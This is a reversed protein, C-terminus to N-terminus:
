KIDRVCRIYNDTSKETTSLSGSKFDIGWAITNDNAFSTITNYFRPKIYQFSKHIANKNRVDIINVFENITPVRWDIYGNLVISECYIQASEYTELYELVESNDQWMLKHTNDTVINLSKEYSNAFLGSLVCVIVVFYRM